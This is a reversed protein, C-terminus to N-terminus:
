LTALNKQIVHGTMQWGSSRQLFGGRKAVALQQAVVSETPEEVQQLGRWGLCLKTHASPRQAPTLYVWLAL